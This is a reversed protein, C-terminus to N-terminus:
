KEVKKAEDYVREHKKEDIHRVLGEALLRLDDRTAGGHEVLREFISLLLTKMQLLRQARPLTKYRQLLDMATLKTADTQPTAVPDIHISKTM